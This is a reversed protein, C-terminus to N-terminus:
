THLQYGCYDYKTLKEKVSKKIVATYVRNARASYQVM